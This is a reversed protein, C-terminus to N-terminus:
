SHIALQTELADLHSGREIKKAPDVTFGATPYGAPRLRQDFDALSDVTHISYAVLHLSNVSM